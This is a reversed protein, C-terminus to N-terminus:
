YKNLKVGSLKIDITCRASLSMDPVRLCEQIFIHISINIEFM